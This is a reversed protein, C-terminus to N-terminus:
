REDFPIIVNRELNFAGIPDVINRAASSARSMSKASLLFKDNSKRATKIDNKVIAFAIAVCKM